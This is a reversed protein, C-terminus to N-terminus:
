DWQVDVPLIGGFTCDAAPFVVENSAEAAGVFV